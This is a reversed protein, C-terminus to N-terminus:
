SSLGLLLGHPVTKTDGTGTHLWHVGTNKFRHSKSSVFNPLLLTQFHCFKTVVPNPLLLIVFLMHDSSTFIDAGNCVTVCSGKLLPHPPTWNQLPPTELHCFKSNALLMIKFRCVKPNRLAHLRVPSLFMARVLWRLMDKGVPLTSLLAAMRYM